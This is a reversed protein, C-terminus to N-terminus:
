LKRTAYRRGFEETGLRGREERALRICMRALGLTQDDSEAWLGLVSLAAIVPRLSVVTTDRLRGGRTTPSLLDFDGGIVDVLLLIDGHREHLARAREVVQLDTFRNTWESAAPDQIFMPLRFRQWILQTTCIAFRSAQEWRFMPDDGRELAERFLARRRGLEAQLRRDAEDSRPHTGRVRTPQILRVQGAPPDNFPLIALPIYEVADFMLRHAEEPDFVYPPPTPYQYVTM